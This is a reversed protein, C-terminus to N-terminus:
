FGIFLFRLLSDKFKKSMSDSETLGHKTFVKNFPLIPSLNNLDDDDDDIVLVADYVDLYTSATFYRLLMIQWFM